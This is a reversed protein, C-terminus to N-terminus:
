VRFRLTDKVRQLCAVLGTMDFSALPVSELLIHRGAYWGRAIDVSVVSQQAVSFQQYLKRSM